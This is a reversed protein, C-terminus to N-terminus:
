GIKLKNTENKKEKKEGTEENSNAKWKVTQQQIAHRNRKHNQVFEARQHLTSEWQLEM